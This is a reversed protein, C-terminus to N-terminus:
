FAASLSFLYSRGLVDYARFGTTSSGILANHPPEADFLNAIVLQARVGKRLEYGLTAGTLFYNDAKNVPIDELTLGSDLTVSDVWRTRLAADFRDWEYQATVLAEWEPVAVTSANEQVPGGPFTRNRFHAVHFLRGSFSFRGPAGDIWAGLPTEYEATAILGAFDLEGTNYYTSTFDVVQGAQAGTGRTFGSCATTDPYDPSDYCATLLDGVSLIEIGDNLHVDIWDATLRLGPAFVPEYIAGLSWSDARENELSPNDTQTGTVGITLIDSDFDAPDGAGLAALAARCNAERARPNEGAQYYRRDCPDIATTRLPSTGLFLETAAPARIAHTFVGRLTLGALEGPLRPILRGGAAWTVDAGALSNDVWRASGEFALAEIVPADWDSRILPARLEGYLETTHYGGEIGVFAPVRITGAELLPDPDFRAREHRREVGINFAVEENQGLPFVGSLNANLVQQRNLSRAKGTETVFRIAEPSAAEKGFLNLPECGTITKDACVIEGTSPDRVANLAAQFRAENIYPLSSVNESRGYNYSLDWNWQAGLAAFEGELGAVGRYLDFESRGPDADLLDSLNRSLYFVDLGNAEIITRASPDLFPNDTSFEIPGGQPILATNIALLERTEEGEAGAYALELFAEAGAAIQYRGIGNLLIRETPAVLNFYESTRLGDGGSVFVPTDGGGAGLAYPILSGDQAFHVPRGQGDFIFAGQPYDGTVWGGPTDSDPLPLGGDTVGAFVREDLVVQSPIGDDPGTDAPNAALFQGQRVFDRGSELLGNRRNYEASVLVSGRQASFAGGALGRVATQNAGGRETVGTQAFVRMGQYSEKLVINVTGAVADSGYVPAGGIAITEVRDVLGLPILNLDVQQGAAATGSASATNSSVFRRGNVLTLTRQSGLGFFNVFTQGVGFTSQGGIANADSIGFGPVDELAEGLNTAGRREFEEASTIIATQLVESQSRRLRSGTVVIEDVQSWPKLATRRSLAGEPLLPERPTRSTRAEREPARARITVTSDGTIVYTLSTGAILQDLAELPELVGAVANTRVGQMVRSPALIQLDSQRAFQQIAASANQEPIDFVNQAAAQGATVFLAAAM